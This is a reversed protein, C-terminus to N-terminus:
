KFQVSQKIFEPFDEIPAITMEKYDVEAAESQLQIQGRTLPTGDPKVANEVVMVITGNVVHVSDNGITYLELHNWEGHPMDVEPSASTYGSGFEESTPDYQRRKGEGARSRVQVGLRGLPIFDGLNTEEVQFELSSKWVNWFRGHKGYCHYLIGSDRLRHLRPEWKKDGWRAYISLHYNEFEDLTTLGAYIEGSVKLVPVGEEEVMTYVQKPDSFGIPTGKRVDDSQFTGEPLGKVTTHPVGMWIEFESLEMDFLSREAYVAPFILGFAAILFLPKYM